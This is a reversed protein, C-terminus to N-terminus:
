GYLYFLAFLSQFDSNLFCLLARFLFARFEFPSLFVSLHFMNIKVSSVGRSGTFYSLKTIEEPNFM